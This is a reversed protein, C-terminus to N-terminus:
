HVRSSGARPATTGLTRRRCRREELESARFRFPSGAATRPDERRQIDANGSILVVGLNKALTRQIGNRKPSIATESQAQRAASIVPSAPLAAILAAGALSRSPSAAQPKRVETWSEWPWLPTATPFSSATGCTAPPRTSRITTQSDRIGGSGRLLPVVLSATPTIVAPILRHPRPREDDTNTPAHHHPGPLLVDIRMGPSPISPDQDHSSTRRDGDAGGNTTVTEVVGPRSTRSTHSASTSRVGPVSTVCSDAHARTRADAPNLETCTRAWRPPSVPPHPM